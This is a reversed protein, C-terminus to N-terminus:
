WTSKLYAIIDASVAPKINPHTPVGLTGAQIKKVDEVTLPYTKSKAANLLAASLCAQLSPNSGSGSALYERLTTNDTGGFVDKFKTGGSYHASTDATSSATSLRHASSDQTSKTGYSYGSPWRGANNPNSLEAITMGLTCSGTGTHSQNGSAIESGCQIGFVSPSALTLIVPTAAAAGKIFRRRKGVDAREKAKILNQPEQDSM